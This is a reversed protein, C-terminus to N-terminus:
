TGSNGIGHTENYRGEYRKIEVEKGCQCTYVIKETDEKIVKNLKRGCYCVYGKLEGPNGYVLGFPPVNNTVVSGAGIMAYEGITV